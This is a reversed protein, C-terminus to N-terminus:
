LVALELEPRAPKVVRDTPRLGAPINFARRGNGDVVRRALAKDVDARGLIVRHAMVDTGADNHCFDTAVTIQGEGAIGAIYNIDEDAECSVFINRMEFEGKMDGASPFLRTPGFGSNIFSSAQATAKQHARHHLVFPVWTAGSEVFAWRLKPFRKYLDSALVAYLGKMVTAPYHINAAPSQHVRAIGAGELHHRAAGTHIVITLDLDQAKAYLPYFRPDDLYYGHEVGKLMVGIAGNYKGFELEKVARDIDRTPCVLVWPLRDWCGATREAMWRNWSRMVAAEAAADEIEAAIFNTSIVIQVDTGIADMKRLRVQPDTLHTVEPTYEAGFGDPRIDSPFRRCFTEGILYFQKAPAGNLGAVEVQAPRYQRESPDLYDWTEECEIVHTDTDIFGM